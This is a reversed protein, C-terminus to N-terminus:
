YNKKHKVETLQHSAPCQTTAASQGRGTVPILPDRLIDVQERTLPADKDAPEEDAREPDSIIWVLAEDARGPDTWDCDVDVEDYAGDYVLQYHRGNHPQV